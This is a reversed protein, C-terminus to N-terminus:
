ARIGAWDIIDLMARKLDSNFELPNGGTSYGDGQQDYLTWTWGDINDDADYELRFDMYEGDARHVRVAWDDPAIREHNIINDSNSYCWQAVDATTWQGRADAANLGAYADVSALDIIHM